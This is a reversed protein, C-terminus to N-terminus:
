SNDAQKQPLLMEPIPDQTSHDAVHMYLSQSPYAFDSGAEAVIQKIQYAFAEKIQLWAGWDTTKTFCYIMIDISSDNFRDIRVFQSVEPPDVFDDNQLLYNEIQDRIQRLQDVTTKYEVGITWYIRRHTMHSFNTVAKDSLIANPVLTLGKDFRRIRTSRFGIKEVTGEVIGDVKVWDGQEMRRESLILLGSILNKFLDQAGLAVAVGLLGMGALIPGVEIGWFQLITAIALLIIMIRLSKVLWALFAKGMLKELTTLKACIPLLLAYFMWFISIAAISQALMRLIDDHEADIQLIEIGGLIALILSLLHLPPKVHTIVDPDIQNGTRRIFFAAMAIIMSALPKRIALCLLIFLIVSIYPHEGIYGQGLAIYDHFSDLFAQM